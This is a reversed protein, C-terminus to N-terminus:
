ISREPKSKKTIEPPRAGQQHVTLWFTDAVRAPEVLFKPRSCFFVNKKQFFTDGARTKDPLRGNM